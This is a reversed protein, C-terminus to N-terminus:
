RGAVTLVVAGDATALSKLRGNEDPTVTYATGAITVATDQWALTLKDAHRPGFLDVVRATSTTGSRWGLALLLPASRLDWGREGAITRPQLDIGKDQDRAVTVERTIAYGDPAGPVAKSGTDRGNWAVIRLQPDLLLFPCDSLHAGGTESEAPPTYVLQLVRNSGFQKDPPSLRMWFKEGAFTGHVDQQAADVVLDAAAIFPITLLLLVIRLM